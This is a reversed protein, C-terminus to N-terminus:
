DLNIRGAIRKPDENAPFAASADRQAGGIKNALELTGLQFSFLSFRRAKPKPASEPLVNYRERGSATIELM